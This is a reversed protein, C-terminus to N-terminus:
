SLVTVSLVTRQPTKQNAAARDTLVNNGTDLSGAFKVGGGESLVFRHHLDTNILLM